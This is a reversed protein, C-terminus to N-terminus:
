IGFLMERLDPDIMKQTWVPSWVVKTQAKKVGKIRRAADEIERILMPGYPCALSTLTMTITATKEKNIEINYILGLDVVGQNIEPDKVRNIIAWAPSTRLERPIPLQAQAQTTKNTKKPM